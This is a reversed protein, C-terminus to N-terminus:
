QKSDEAFRNPSYAEIPRSTSGQLILDAVIEATLPALLIGNRFHGTAFILNQWQGYGLIPLHDATDPRLGAWARQFRSDSLFPALRQVGQLISILGRATVAKEFGTYEATTGVLVRKEPRPVLYHIGARVVCPLERTTEFEMMQGCCPRVPLSSGLAEATRGSWCGAAVVYAPAVITYGNEAVAGEIRNDRTEFKGVDRGPEFRVGARHAAVVLARMLRENDVWHDDPVFLAGRMEPSLGGVRERAEAPALPQLTFGRATQTRHVSALEEEQAEDLAMLLAGDNRYAVNQGSSDEVETVFHPYLRHSAICFEAFVLPQLMEGIPALMGAAASSAEAGPEARDLITVELGAQALRWGISCGIIGGGIIVVDATDSTNKAM